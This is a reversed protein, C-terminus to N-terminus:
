SGTAHSPATSAVPAKDLSQPKTESMIQALQGPHKANYADYYLGSSVVNLHGYDNAVYLPVEQLSTHCRDASCPVDYTNILSVQPYKKMVESLAAFTARHADNAVSDPYSCDRRALPLWMQNYLQCNTLVEPEAPIDDFLVVHKGAQLLMAVTNGLEDAFGGQRFGFGNILGTTPANAYIDWNASVFVTSIQKNALVYAFATANHAACKEQTAKLNAADAKPAKAIPACLPFALDHISLQYAKGLRDMFQILHYAHSDGLMVANTPLVTDGLSCTAANTLAVQDWCQRGRPNMWTSQKASAYLRQFGAPYLREFQDTLQGVFFLAFAGLIPAAIYGLIVRRRRTRAYRLPTEVYRYSLYGLVISLVIAVCTWPLTSADFRRFAFLVPWHWLYLSYSIRGLFLMVGNGLLAAAIRSARGFGIILGAGVCPFLAMWGPYPTTASLLYASLLTTILGAVVAADAAVGRIADRRFSLLVGTMFEFGRYPTLFYAGQTAHSVAWQSACLSAIGLCVFLALRWRSQWRWSLLLLAPLVLYFQEEVSLSWIHLLPQNNTQSAFYDTKHALYINSSLLSAYGLTKLTRMADDPMLYLLAFVFVCGMLVYLAPALRKARGLYFGIFSFNGDTLGRQIARSVVFGSIVFFVDVGIFGGKFLSFGAHFFVVLLVAVARLGDIDPRYYPSDGRAKESM